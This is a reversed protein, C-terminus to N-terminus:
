INVAHLHYTFYYKYDSPLPARVLLDSTIEWSTPTLPVINFQDLIQEIHDLSYGDGDTKRIKIRVKVSHHKNKYTSISFAFPGGFKEEIKNLCEDLTM